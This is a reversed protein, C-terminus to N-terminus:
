KNGGFNSALSSTFRIGVLCVLAASSTRIHHVGERLHHPPPRFRHHWAGAAEASAGGREAGVIACEVAREAGGGAAAPAGFAGPGDGVGEIRLTYQSRRLRAPSASFVPFCFSSALRSPPHRGIGFFRSFRSRVAPGPSFRQIALPGKRFVAAYAVRRSGSISLPM